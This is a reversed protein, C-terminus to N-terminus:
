KDARWNFGGSVQIDGASRGILVEFQGPEVIWAKQVDDYFALDKEQLLLTVTQTEGPDLEIKAFAKLEKPPRILSSQVDRLYLQVVEQGSRVGTNTVNVQVQIVAGPGYHDANLRINDYAFITYSLGHGFPFLPEIEKKDYYRYGIFLGEGYRVVGNEGPFNIHAPNDQIRKPFTTPLRGSPDAEGFLVDIIANGAEQGLYWMQLVSKAQDLWPMHLPSSANLVVVTNPNAAAVREILKNQEGPLDMNVRDQGEGEWESTLGAFVIAVDANKALAAADGIPDDPQPPLCGLRITRWRGGPLSAYEIQLSYSQGAKLHVEKTERIWETEIGDFNQPQKMEAEDWWDLLIEGDLWWRARGVATLVFTYSGSEPATWSGSMRLSFAALDHDPASEGFWAQQTGGALFEKFPNGALSTNDYQQISVKGPVGDASSLGQPDLLPVDRHISPGPAYKVDLKDGFRSQIAELPNIVYHPNVESSGGGQFTITQAPRGIIAVSRTTKAELPLLNRENKLLVIAEGGAKRILARPAPDDVSQEAIMKPNDLLGAQELTRLIRRIKDNIVAEELNGNRVSELAKKGMWRAPGPMELDLGGAPVNDSYTGYWDSIVLGDFGWEGKLIELLLKPHESAYVGNVRNYASMLTWPQAEQVAAKFAPLYIEHLTRDDVESSISFREFEQDNCAFHKICAGVGESQLGDIYAVAMLSSLYPDESFCEFNRGALPHRHSNVTPGLLVHAGKMKAEEGLAVGIERVLEPNWTAGMATGVPFSASTQSKIDKQEGRVGNPGDSVKLASIGLREIAQTRWTDTGALLTIKEELTMSALIQEIRKEM